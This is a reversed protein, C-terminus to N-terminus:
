WVEFSSFRLELCCRRDLEELRAADYHESGYDFARVLGDDDIAVADPVAGRGPKATRFLDEGIWTAALRPRSRTVALHMEVVALDHAAQHPKSLDPAVGGTLHVARRTAHYAWAKRLPANGRAALTRAVARYDPQDDSARRVSLPGTLNVLVQMVWSRGLWGAACLRELARKAQEETQGRLQAAQAVTVRRFCFCLGQFLELDPEGLRALRSSAAAIEL